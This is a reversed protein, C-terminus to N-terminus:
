WQGNSTSYSACIMLATGALLLFVFLGIALWLYAQNAVYEAFRDSEDVPLKSFAGGYRWGRWALLAFAVVYVGRYAHITHVWSWGFDLPLYYFGMIWAILCFLAGIGSCVSSIRVINATLALNGIVEERRTELQDTDPPM